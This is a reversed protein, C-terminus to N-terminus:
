LVNDYDIGGKKYGILRNANVVVFGFANSLYYHRIGTAVNLITMEVVGVFGTYKVKAMKGLRKNM